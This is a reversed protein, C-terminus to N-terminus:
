RKGTFDSTGLFTAQENLLPLLGKISKEFLNVGAFKNSFSSRRADMLPRQDFRIPGASSLSLWRGLNWGGVWTTQLRPPRMVPVRVQVWVGVASRVGVVSVM